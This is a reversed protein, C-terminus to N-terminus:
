FIGVNKERKDNVVRNALTVESVAVLARTSFQLRVFHAASIHELSLPKDYTQIRAWSKYKCNMNWNFFSQFQFHMRECLAFIASPLPPAIIFLIVAVAFCVLWHSFPLLLLMSVYTCDFMCICLLCHHLLVRACLYRFIRNRSNLSLNRSRSAFPSYILCAPPLSLSFQAIARCLNLGLVCQAFPFTFYMVRPHFVCRAM